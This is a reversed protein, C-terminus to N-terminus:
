KWLVPQTLLVLRLSRQRAQQAIAEVNRQYENLAAELPPLDDVQLARQRNERLTRFTHGARDQVREPRQVAWYLTRLRRGLEWTATRRYWPLRASLRDWPLVMFSRSALWEGYYDPDEMGQPHHSDGFWLPVRLDNAGILMVVLDVDFQDFGRELLARHDRTQLGSRAANGVWVQRGDATASLGQEVLAPWTKDQDLYLSET